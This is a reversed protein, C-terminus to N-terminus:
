TGTRLSPSRTSVSVCSMMSWRVRVYLSTPPPSQVWPDVSGDVGLLVAHLFPSADESFADHLRLVERIAKPEVFLFNFRDDSGIGHPNRRRNQARDPFFAIRDPFLDHRFGGFQGVEVGLVIREFFIEHARDRVQDM